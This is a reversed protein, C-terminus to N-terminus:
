GVIPILLGSRIIDLVLNGLASANRHRATSVKGRKLLVQRRFVQCCHPISKLNMSETNDDICGHGGNRWPGMPFRYDTIERMGVGGRAHVTMGWAWPFRRPASVKTPTRKRPHDETMLSDLDSRTEMSPAKEMTLKEM